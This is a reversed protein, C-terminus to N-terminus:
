LSYINTRFTHKNGLAAFNMYTRNPKTFSKGYLNRFNASNAPPTQLFSCIMKWLICKTLPKPAVKQVFDRLKPWIIHFTDYSLIKHWAKDWIVCSIHEFIMYTRLISFHGRFRGCSTCFSCVKHLVKHVVSHVFIWTSACFMCLLAEFYSYTRHSNPFVHACLM